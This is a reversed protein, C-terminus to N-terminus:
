RIAIHTRSTQQRLYESPNVGSFARFDHNFHAQDFYGSSLALDSWDVAAAPELRRLVAAFRRIRQFVSPSLGVEPQFIARLRRSSMGLERAVTAVSGAGRSCELADLAYPVAWHRVLPQRMNQRLADELVNFRDEPASASWLRDAITAAFTGWLLDLTVHRDRLESSPVGFFPSTGGPKFHIGIASFPRSTQLELFTTRPGAISSRARGVSDVTFIVDATATPLVRERSHPQRYGCHIWFCDIFPALRSASGLRRIVPRDM